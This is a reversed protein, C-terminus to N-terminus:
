LLRGEKLQQCRWATPRWNPLAEYSDRSIQMAREKCLERTKFGGPETTDHLEFCVTPDALACVLVIAKFM